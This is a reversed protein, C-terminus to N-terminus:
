ELSLSSMDIVFRHDPNKSLLTDWAKNIENINIQKCVPHINHEACFDLVEQTKKVGGILSGAIRRRENFANEKFVFLLVEFNVLCKLDQTSTVWAVIIDMYASGIETIFSVLLSEGLPLKIVSRSSLSILLRQLM